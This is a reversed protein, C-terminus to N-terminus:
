GDFRPDRSDTRTAKSQQVHENLNELQGFGLDFGLASPEPEGEQPHEREEEKPARLDRDM